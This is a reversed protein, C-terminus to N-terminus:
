YVNIRCAEGGKGKTELKDELGWRATKFGNEEAFRCWAENVEIIVGQADLLAIHAPLANLIAAQMDTKQHLRRRRPM